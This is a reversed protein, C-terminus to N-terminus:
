RLFDHHTLCSLLQPVQAVHVGGMSVGGYLFTILPNPELLARAQESSFATVQKISRSFISGLQKQLTLQNSVPAEKLNKMLMDLGMIKDQPSLPVLHGIVVEPIDKRDIVIEYLATKVALFPAVSPVDVTRAKELDVQAFAAKKKRINKEASILFSLASKERVEPDHPARKVAEALVNEAKRFANNRYYLDALALCPAPDGDFTEAMTEYLSVMRNRISRQQTNCGGLLAYAERSAADKEVAKEIFRLLLEGLDIAGSLGLNLDRVLRQLGDGDEDEDACHPDERLQPCPGGRM